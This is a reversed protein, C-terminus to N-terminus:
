ESQVKGSVKIKGDSYEFQASSAHCPVKREQYHWTGWWIKNDIDMQSMAMTDVPRGDSDVLDKVTDSLDINIMEAAAQACTESTVDFGALTKRASKKDSFIFNCANIGKPSVGWYKCTGAQASTAIFAATVILFISKM